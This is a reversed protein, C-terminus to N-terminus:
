RRPAAQCASRPAAARTPRRRGRLRPLGARASGNTARRARPRARLACVEHAGVIPNMRAWSGVKAGGLAPRRCSAVALRSGTSSRSWAPGPMPASSTCASRQSRTASAPPVRRQHPRARDERWPSIAGGWAGSVVVDARTAPPPEGRSASVRARHRAPGRRRWAARLDRRPPATACAAREDPARSRPRPRAAPRAIRPLPRSGRRRPRGAPPSGRNEETREKDRGSRAWRDRRAM